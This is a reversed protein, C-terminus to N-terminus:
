CKTAGVPLTENLPRTPISAGKEMFYEDPDFGYRICITSSFGSGNGTADAVRKWLPYIYRTKGTRRLRHIMRRIIESESPLRSVIDQYTERM